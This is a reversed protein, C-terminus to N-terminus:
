AGRIDHQDPRYSGRRGKHTTHPRVATARGAYKNYIYAKQNVSVHPPVPEGFVNVLEPLSTVVRDLSGVAGTQSATGLTLISLLLFSTKIM